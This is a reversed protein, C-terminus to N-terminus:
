HYLVIHFRGFVGRAGDMPQWRLVDLRFLAHQAGDQEMLTRDQLSYLKKGRIIKIAGFMPQDKCCHKM